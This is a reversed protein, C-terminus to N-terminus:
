FFISLICISFIFYTSYSNKPWIIIVKLFCLISTLYTSYTLYMSCKSTTTRSRLICLICSVNSIATRFHLIHQICPVNQFPLELIYFVHWISWLIRFHIRHLYVNKVVIVIVPFINLAILSCFVIILSFWPCLLTLHCKWTCSLIFQIM